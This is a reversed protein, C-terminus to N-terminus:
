QNNNHSGRRWMSTSPWHKETKKKQKKTSPRHKKFWVYQHVFHAYMKSETPQDCVICKLHMSVVHLNHSSYSNHSSGNCMSDYQNIYIWKNIFLHMTHMAIGVIASFYTSITNTQAYRAHMTCIASTFIAWEDNNQKTPLENCHGDIMSRRQWHSRTSHHWYTTGKITTTPTTAAAKVTAVEPVRLQYQCILWLADWRNRLIVTSTVASFGIWQEVCWVCVHM